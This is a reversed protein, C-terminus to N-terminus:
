SQHSSADQGDNNEETPPYFKRLAEELVDRLAKVAEERGQIYGHYKGVSYGHDYEAQFDQETM